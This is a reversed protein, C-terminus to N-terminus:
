CQLRPYLKFNENCVKVIEFISKNNFGLGDLYPKINESKRYATLFKRSSCIDNLEKQLIDWQEPMNSNRLDEESLDAEISKIDSEIKKILGKVPSSNRYKKFVQYVEQLTYADNDQVCRAPREMTKPIQENSHDCRKVIFRPVGRKQGKTMDVSKLHKCNRCSEKDLLEIRM